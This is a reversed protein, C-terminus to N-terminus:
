QFIMIRKSYKKLTPFTVNLTHLSFQFSLGFVQQRTETRNVQKGIAAKKFVGNMILHEHNGFIKLSSTLTETQGVKYLFFGLDFTM